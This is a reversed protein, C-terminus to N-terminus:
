GGAALVKEVEATVAAPRCRSVIHLEDGLAKGRVVLIGTAQVFVM